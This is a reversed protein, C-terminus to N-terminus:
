KFKLKYTPKTVIKTIRSSLDDKLFVSYTIPGDKWYTGKLIRKCFFALSLIPKLLHFWTPLTARYQKKEVESIPNLSLNTGSFVFTSFYKKVHAAKFRKELVDHLFIADAISKYSENFKCTEFIKRRYFLTCTTTYLYNSFFLPWWPAFSKRFAILEGETDTVLFDGALFDIKPHSNFYDLVFKLTGPLYQEDCNLHGIIEGKSAEIANNLAHYMGNDKESRSFIQKNELLWERTGDTSLGDMVIHEFDVGQDQVSACCMKLYPLMNFSPTVISIVPM